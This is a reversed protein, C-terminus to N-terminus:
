PPCALPTPSSWGTRATRYATLRPASPTPPTLGSRAEGSARLHMGRLTTTQRPRITHWPYTCGSEMRVRAVGGPPCPEDTCSRLTVDFISPTETRQM